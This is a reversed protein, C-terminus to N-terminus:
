AKKENKKQEDFYVQSIERDVIVCEMPPLKETMNWMIDWGPKISKLWNDKINQTNCYGVIKIKTFPKKGQSERWLNHHYFGTPIPTKKSPPKGVLLEIVKPNALSRIWVFTEGDRYQKSEHILLWRDVGNPGYDPIVRGSKKKVAREIELNVKKLVAKVDTKTLGKDRMSKVHEPNEWSHKNNIKDWCDKEADKKSYPEQIEVEENLANSLENIEVDSLLKHIHEPILIYPLTSSHKWVGSEALMYARITHSGSIILKKYFKPKKGNSSYWRNELVVIAKVKRSPQGTEGEVKDIIKYLNKTVIKESRTQARPFGNIVSVIEPTKLCSMNLYNFDSDPYIHDFSPIEKEVDYFNPRLKNIDDKIIQIKDYDVKKKGRRQNDLNYFLHKNEDTRYKVLLEHEEQHMEETSGWDFMIRQFQMNPDVQDNRFDISTASTPYTQTGLQIDESIGKIGVYMKCKNKLGFNMLKHRDNLVAKSPTVSKGGLNIDVYMFTTCGFPQRRAEHYEYGAPALTTENM